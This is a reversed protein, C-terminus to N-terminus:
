RGARAEEVRGRLERLAEERGRLHAQLGDLQERIIGVDEQVVKLDLGVKADGEGRELDSLQRRKYQLLQELERKVLAPQSKRQLSSSSPLSVQEKQSQKTAREVREIKEELERLQKKLGVEEWDEGVQAQRPRTKEAGQRSMYSFDTGKTRYATRDGVGLRSLYADGFKAKRSTSTNGDGGRTAWRQGPPVSSASASQNRELDYDIRGREFSARLSAPVSRPIRYGEHRYNLIHLFALTADKGVSAAASPNILNWASRIDTDPVDLSAFLPDLSALTIEGRGDRNATYIEEYKAKDAPSMYWDFGDRLGSGDDDYGGGGSGVSVDAVSEFGPQRGSLARNAQVLHAKSEPVLWDPLSSPVDAYEQEWIYFILVVEDGEFVVGDEKFVYGGAVGGVM